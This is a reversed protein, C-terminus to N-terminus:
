ARFKAFSKELEADPPAEGAPLRAIIGISKYTERAIRARDEAPFRAISKVIHNVHAVDGGVGSHHRRCSTAEVGPPLLAEIAALEKETVALASREVACVYGLAEYPDCKRACRTFYELLAAAQPPAPISAVMSEARYGLARLDALAMEEDGSELRAIRRSFAALDRRGAEQFRAAAEMMLGPSAHTLHYYGVVDWVYRALTLPARQAAPEAAMLGASWAGSLLQRTTAISGPGRMPAAFPDQDPDLEHLWAQDEVAVLVQRDTIQTWELGVDGGTRRQAGSKAKTKM